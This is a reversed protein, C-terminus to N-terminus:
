SINIKEFLSVYVCNYTFRGLNLIYVFFLTKLIDNLRKYLGSKHIIFLSFYIFNRM